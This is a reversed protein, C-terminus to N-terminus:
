FMNLLRETIFIKPAVSLMILNYLNSIFFVIGALIPISGFEIAFAGSLSLMDFEDDKVWEQKRCKFFLIIPILILFIGLVFGMIIKAYFYALIEPAYFDSVTIIGNKAEELLLRISEEM